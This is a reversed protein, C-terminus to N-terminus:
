QGAPNATKRVDSVSFGAPVEFLKPDPESESIDSLLFHETGTRPDSRTVEINFGLKPSFWTEHTIVIPRDNGVAGAPIQWSRRIGEVELGSITKTGLKQVNGGSMNDANDANVVKADGGRYNTEICRKEALRCMYRVHEIPDEVDFATIRSEKDAPVFTAREQLVRGLNDRAIARRNHVTVTTGDATKRQFETTMTATFPVGPTPAIFVTIIRERVQSLAVSSLALLCVLSRVATPRM